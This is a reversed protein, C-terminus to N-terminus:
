PVVGRDGLRWVGNELGLSVGSARLSRAPTQERAAERLARRADQECQGTVSQVILSYSELVM